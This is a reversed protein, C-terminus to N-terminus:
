NNKRGYDECIAVRLGHRILKPLYGDLANYPFLAYHYNDRYLLTIGLVESAKDADECFMEYFDGARFLLLAKPHKAKLEKYKEIM